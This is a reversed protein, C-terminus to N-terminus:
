ENSSKVTMVRCDYTVIETCTVSTLVYVVHLLPVTLIHNRPPCVRGDPLACGGMWGREEMGKGRCGERWDGELGRLLLGRKLFNNQMLDVSITLM